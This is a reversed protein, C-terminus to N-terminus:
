PGDATSLLYANNNTGGYTPNNVVYELKYVIAPSGSENYVWGWGGTYYIGAWATSDMLDSLDVGATCNVFQSVNFNYTTFGRGTISGAASGNYGAIRITSNLDLMDMNGGIPTVFFKTTWESPPFFGFRSSEGTEMVNIVGTPFFSFDEGTDDNVAKYGWAAGAFIDMVIAEGGLSWGYGVNVRNGVADSNTVLLYARRAGATGIAFSGGYDDPDNFLAWGGNYAGSADFSVIDPVWTPMVFSSVACGGSYNPLGGIFTDKYSYIYRLHTSKSTGGGRNVVSVITTVYPQNVAIVPFLVTDAKTTSFTGFTLVLCLFIVLGTGNWKM